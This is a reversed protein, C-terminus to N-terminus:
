GSRDSPKSAPKLLARFYYSLLLFLGGFGLFLLIRWIAKLQAFDVLFLKAVVMLLTGLGVIRLQTLDQRLGVVLLITGYVGWAIAVLGNGDTLVSLERWLWGLFALHVLLRYTQQSRGRLRFSGALGLTFVALDTLARPNVIAAGRVTGTLLRELFWLGVGSFLLHAAIALSRSSLQHAILHLATAEVALALFLTDGDLLLVLAIALLIFAVLTHTYALRRTAPWRRLYGAVLGYFTASGIIMSGWTQESLSWVQTSLGLTVLPTLVSLLHVHPELDRPNGIAGPLNGFHRLNLTHRVVPVAWFALWGFLIGFQLVWPSDGAAFQSTGIWFVAWGGVFSTWLLSRWGKALYIASTGALILCTYGVLGVLSGATHLLFPTGLGGATGIVSLVAQNQRVSLSFALLTVGTMFGFAIAYAVLAYLQFAAFGTIYFTAISGGLLVQSFPRRTRYLRLGIILLAVGLALGFGVRVPPTLWGQDVSYKFLFVVGLLLLGIGLKNLWYEMNWRPEFTESPLPTQPLSPLPLQLSSQPPVPLTSPVEPIETRDQIRQDALTQSLQSVLRQLEAVTLELQEVRNELSSDPPDNM